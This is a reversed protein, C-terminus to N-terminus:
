LNMFAALMSESFLIIGVILYLNAKAEGKRQKEPSWTEDTHFIHERIKSPFISSSMAVLGGVLLIIGSNLLLIKSYYGNTVLTSIYQNLFLSFIPLLLSDITLLIINAKIIWIASAKWRLQM